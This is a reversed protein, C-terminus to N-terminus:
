NCVYYNVESITIGQSGFDVMFVPANDNVDVVVITVIETSKQSPSGGDSAEISLNYM